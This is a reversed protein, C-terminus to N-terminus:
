RAALAAAREAGSRTLSLHGDDRRVLGAGTAAAVVRAAQGPPWRLADSLHVVATETAEEPTGAHAALHVVLTDVAFRLRQRRRRLAGPVLGHAPAFLFALAFLVGAMMAMAGSISCDVAYAFLFGLVASAAGTAVALAILRPLRDTLLRATAAPVVLLAVALVAGVASFAGVATVSVAAMLLYHLAFPAFGLSAALGADFTALKLEKYLVTVFALNLLCLTGMVWVSLPGLDRGGVILLDQGAFEINGYLIADADLHVNAFFRSVIVTGLAFMAPFTIGIAADNAVLRSRTLVEVATVTVLAAATAGLMGAALSPGNALVFGAVLGPLIAHSIADALMAMRRLVLFSGLLAAAASVLVGTLVIALDSSM